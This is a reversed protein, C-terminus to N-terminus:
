GAWSPSRGARGGRRAPGPRPLSSRRYLHLTVAYWGCLRLLDLWGAAGSLPGASPQVAAAAAWLATLVGAASLALRSPNARSRMMVLAALAAYAVACVGYLVATM